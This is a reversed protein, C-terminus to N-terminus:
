DWLPPMHRWTTPAQMEIVRARNAKTDISDFVLTNSVPDSGFSNLKVPPRVPGGSTWDALAGPGLTCRLSRPGLLAQLDSQEAWCPESVLLASAFLLLIRVM